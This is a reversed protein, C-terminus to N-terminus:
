KPRAIFEKGKYILHIGEKTVGKVRVGFEADGAGEIVDGVDYIKDNIIAQPRASKWLMGQFTMAPLEIKEDTINKEETEDFPGKFPVANDDTDYTVGKEKQPVNQELADLDKWKKNFEERSLVEDNTGGKKFRAMGIIIAVIVLGAIALYEIMHQKKPNTQAM